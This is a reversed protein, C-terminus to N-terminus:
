NNGPLGPVPTLQNMPLDQNPGEPSQPLVSQQEIPNLPEAFNDPPGIKDLVNKESLLNNIANEFITYGEPNTQQLQALFETIANPDSPDIGYKSLIDFLSVIAENQSKTLQEDATKKQGNFSNMKDNIAAMLKDLDAAMEEPTMEPSDQQSPNVMGKLNQYQNPEM